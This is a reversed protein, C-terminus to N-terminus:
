YSLCTYGPNWLLWSVICGPAAAMKEASCMSLQIHTPRPPRPGCVDGPHGLDVCMEQTAQVCVDGHNGPCVCLVMITQSCVDGPHGSCVCVDGPHGLCVCMVM